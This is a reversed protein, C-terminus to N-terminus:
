KNKEFNNKSESQKRNGSYNGKIKMIDKIHNISSHQMLLYMHAKLFSKLWNHLSVVATAGLSVVESSFFSGKTNKSDWSGVWYELLSALSYTPYNISLNLINVFEVYHIVFQYM